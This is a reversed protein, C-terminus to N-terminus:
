KAGERSQVENSAFQALIRLTREQDADLHRPEHDIVCLSGLAFGDADVVAAGAYFRFYPDAAVAPNSAFRPDDALDHVMFMDRQLITYNCFAWSRPTEVMELGRRSKFVQQQATLLTLLAIPTQLSRSALWTLQDFPEQAGGNLLGSRQLAALRLSENPAVPFSADGPPSAIRSDTGQVAARVADALQEPRTLQLHARATMGASAEQTGVVIVKTRALAPSTTLFQWLLTQDAVNQEVDVIVAAPPRAGISAAAAYGSAHMEVTCGDLEALSDKLLSQRDPSALLVLRASRMAPTAGKQTMLALVDSRYVRRHGGPTKWSTLSGGEILMQATRVSIGLLKATESTTLIDSDM